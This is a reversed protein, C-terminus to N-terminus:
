GNGPHKFESTEVVDLRDNLFEAKVVDILSDCSEPAALRMIANHKM